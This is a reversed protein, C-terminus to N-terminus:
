IIQCLLGFIGLPTSNRWIGHTLIIGCSAVFSFHSSDGGSVVMAQGHHAGCVTTLEM